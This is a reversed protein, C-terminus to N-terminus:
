DILDGIKSPFFYTVSLSDDLEEGRCNRFSHTRSTLLVFLITIMFFSCLLFSWMRSLERELKIVMIISRKQVLSLLKRDLWSNVIQDKITVWCIWFLFFGVELPVFISCNYLDFTDSTFDYPIIKECKKRKNKLFFIINLFESSFIILQNMIPSNQTIKELTQLVRRNQM